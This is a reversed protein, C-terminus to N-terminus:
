VSQEVKARQYAAHLRQFVPGPRGAQDGHGIPKGDLQTVPLVEKSASSLILEDAARVDAEGIPRLVFAIGEVACLEALLDYRIGELVHVSKPAGYVTGDRVVWVNSSSAETLLGNRFLITETAGVDASMQRALVNGLLSTSKIDAREWRFDEASICRVGESLQAESIAKMPTAM